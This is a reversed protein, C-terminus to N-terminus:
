KATKISALMSEFAPLAASMEPLPARPMLVGDTNDVVRGKIPGTHKAHCLLRYIKGNPEKVDFQVVDQVIGFGEDNEWMQAYAIQKGVLVPQSGNAFAFHYSGIPTPKGGSEQDEQQSRKYMLDAWSSKRLEAYASKGKEVRILLIDKVPKDADDSEM